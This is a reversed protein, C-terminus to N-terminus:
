FPMSNFILIIQEKVPGLQHCSVTIFVSRARPSPRDTRMSWKWHHCYSMRTLSPKHAQVHERIRQGQTKGPDVATNSMNSPADKGLVEHM